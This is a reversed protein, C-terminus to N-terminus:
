KMSWRRPDRLEVRRVVPDVAFLRVVRAGSGGSRGALVTLWM